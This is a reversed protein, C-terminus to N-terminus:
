TGKKTFAELGGTVWEAVDPKGVLRLAVIGRASAVFPKAGKKRGKADVELSHVAADFKKPNGAKNRITAM